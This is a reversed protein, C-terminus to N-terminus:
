IHILSLVYGSQNLGTPLGLEDDLHEFIEIASLAMRCNLENGWQARMGAGCRGTSGSGVTNKELVVVDKVGSKSLYYATSAGVAGGGIIVVEATKPFDM